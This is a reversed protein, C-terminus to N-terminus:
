KKGKDIDYFLVKNRVENRFKKDRFQIENDVADELFDNFFGSWHGSLSNAWQSDPGSNLGILAVPMKNELSMKASKLIHNARTQDAQSNQFIAKLPLIPSNFPIKSNLNAIHPIPFYPLFTWALLTSVFLTKAKMKPTQFKRMRSKKGTSEIGILLLLVLASVFFSFYSFKILYYGGSVGRLLLLLNLSFSTFLTIENLLFANKFSTPLESKVINKRMVYTTIVTFLLTIQAIVTVSSISGGGIAIYDLHHESISARLVIYTFTMWALLLFVKVIISKREDCRKETLFFILIYLSAPVLFLSYASVVLILGGVKFVSKKIGSNTDCIVIYIFLLSSLVFNPYGMTQLILLIFMLAAHVLTQSFEYVRPLNSDGKKMNKRAISMLEKRLTNIITNLVIFSIVIGVIIYTIFSVVSAKITENTVFMSIIMHWLQPYYLYNHPLMSSDPDSVTLFGVKTALSNTIAFHGVQDYGLNFLVLFPERNTLHFLFNLGILSLGVMTTDIGLPRRLKREQDLKRIAKVFSYLFFVIGLILALDQSLTLARWAIVSFALVIFTNVCSAIKETAVFHICLFSLSICIGTISIELYFLSAFLISIQTILSIQSKTM